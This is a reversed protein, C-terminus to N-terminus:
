LSARDNHQTELFRSLVHVGAPTSEVIELCLEDMERRNADSQEEMAEITKATRAHHVMFEGLILDGEGEFETLPEMLIGLPCYVKVHHDRYATRLYQIHLRRLGQQFLDFEKSDLVDNPFYLKLSADSLKRARENMDLTTEIDRKQQDFECLHEYIAQESLANKNRVAKKVLNMSHTILETRKAMPSKRNLGNISLHSNLINQLEELCAQEKALRTSLSRKLKQEWYLIARELKEVAVPDFFKVFRTNEGM